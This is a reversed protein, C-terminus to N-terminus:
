YNVWKRSFFFNIGSLFATIIVLFVATATAQGMNFQTFALQYFYYLITRTSGAPGGQTLILIQDYAKMCEILDVIIVFFTTPSIYPLTIHLLKQFGTAGDIDASEYLQVPVRYMASLFFIMNYGCIKWVSVIIVAPMAWESSEIWPLGPIGVLSLLFNALGTDPNFIWAWVISVAIAPTIWPLFLVSRFFGAFRKLGSLLYAMLLGLVIALMSTAVCFYLTNFLVKHFDSDNLLQLYNDFGVYNYQPSMYDWDTASIRITDLMPYIWFVAIPVLAPLLFLFIVTRDSHLTRKIKQVM